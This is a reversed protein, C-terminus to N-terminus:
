GGVMCFHSYLEGIINSLNRNGLIATKKWRLVHIEEEKMGPINTLVTKKLFYKNNECESIEIIWEINMIHNRYNSESMEIIRRPCISCLYNVYVGYVDLSWKLEKHQWEKDELTTCTVIHKFKKNPLLKRQKIELSKHYEM